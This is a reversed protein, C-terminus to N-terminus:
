FPMCKAYFALRLKLHLMKTTQSGPKQIKEIQITIKSLYSKRILSLDYYVAFGMM